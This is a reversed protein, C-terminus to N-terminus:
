IYIYVYIYMYINNLNHHSKAHAVMSGCPEQSSSHRMAGIALGQPSQAPVPESISPAIGLIGTVLWVPVIGQFPSACHRVIICLTFIHWTCSQCQVYPQFYLTQPRVLSGIRSGTARSSWGVALLGSTTSLEARLWHKVKFHPTSTNQLHFVRFTIELRIKKNHINHSAQFCSCTYCSGEWNSSHKATPVQSPVHLFV